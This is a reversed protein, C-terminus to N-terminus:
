QDGWSCKILAAASTESCCCCGLAGGEAGRQGCLMAPPVPDPRPLAIVAASRSSYGAARMRLWQMQHATHHQAQLEPHRALSVNQFFRGYGILLQQLGAPTM